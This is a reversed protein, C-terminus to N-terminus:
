FIMSAQQAAHRPSQLVLNDRSCKTESDSKVLETTRTPPKGQHAPLDTSIPMELSVAFISQSFCLLWSEGMSSAPESAKAVRMLSMSNLLLRPRIFACM